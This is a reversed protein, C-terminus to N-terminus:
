RPPRKKYEESARILERAHEISIDLDRSSLMRAIEAVREEGELMRVAAYTRGGREEKSVLCHNDALAAIAALHTVCFIQHSRGLGWLKDAVAQGSKGGIGADIEDFIVTPVPDVAEMHSKIALMLRSLEGGSAVKNVPMPPEGPNASFLFSLNDFGYPGPEADKELRAIFKGGPMGLDKLSSTVDQEMAQAIETRVATLKAGWSAMARETADSEQRLRSLTEDAHVLEELKARADAAFAEIREVTEGYKSKLKQILDLRESIVRLREPDLVLKKRYDRIQDLASELGFSVEQVAEVAQGVGPDIVQVKRLQLVAMDISESASRGARGGEYLAEYAGSVLEVLREQSSLVAYEQRAEEEEGPVLKAKAIEDTQFTLLDIERQRGRGKDLDSIRSLLAQRKRYLESLSQRLPETAEKRLSDLLELYGQPRLLSHHEQQGHIDVLRSGLNQAMAATALRGNIRLYSRDPLMDKQLVVEDAGSLADALPDDPGSALGPPLSALLEIVAREQGTRILEKPTRQGLCALVADIVMSKGAGTEGTFVTLGEGLELRVDSFLGFSRISLYSIM